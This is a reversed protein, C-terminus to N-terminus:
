TARQRVSSYIAPPPPCARYVCVRIVKDILQRVIGNWEGTKPDLVGYKGDPVLALRYEFGVHMAVLRLLDICFGEFVAEAVSSSSSSSGNSLDRRM